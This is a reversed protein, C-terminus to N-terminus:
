TIDNHSTQVLVDCNERLQIARLTNPDLIAALRGDQIKESINHNHGAYQISMHYGIKTYLIMCIPANIEPICTAHIRYCGQNQTLLVFITAMGGYYIQVSFCVSM